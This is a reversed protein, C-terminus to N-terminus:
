SRKTPRMTLIGTIEGVRSQLQLIEDARRGLNAQHAAVMAAPYYSPLEKAKAKELAATRTEVRTKLWRCYSILFPKPEEGSIPLDPSPKIHARRTVPDPDAMHEAWIESFQASFTKGEGNKQLRQNRQVTANNELREKTKGLALAQSVFVAIGNLSRVTAESGYTQDTYTRDKGDPEYTREATVAGPKLKALEAEAGFGIILGAVTNQIESVYAHRNSRAGPYGSFINHRIAGQDLEPPRLVLEELPSVLFVDLRDRRLGADPAVVEYTFHLDQLRKGQAIPSDTVGLTAYDAQFLELSQAEIQGITEIRTM